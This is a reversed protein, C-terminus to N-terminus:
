EVDEATECLTNLIERSGKIANNGGLELIIQRFDRALFERAM